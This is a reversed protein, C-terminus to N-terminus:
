TVNCRDLVIPCRSLRISIAYNKKEGTQLSELLGFRVGDVTLVSRGVRNENTRLSTPPLTCTYPTRGGYHQFELIRIPFFIFRIRPRLGGESIVNFHNVIRVIKM